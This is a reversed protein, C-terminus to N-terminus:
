FFKVERKEQDDQQNDEKTKQKNKRNRRKNGKFVILRQKQARNRRNRWWNASGEECCLNCILEPKANPADKSQRNEEMLENLEAKTIQLNSIKSELQKMVKHLNQASENETPTWGEFCDADTWNTQNM